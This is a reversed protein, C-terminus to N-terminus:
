TIGLTSTQMPVSVSGWERGDEHVSYGDGAWGVAEIGTGMVRDGDV